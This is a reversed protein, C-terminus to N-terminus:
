NFVIKSDVHIPKRNEKCPLKHYNGYLKTLLLDYDKFSMFQNNEFTLYIYNNAIRKKFIWSNLGQPASMDIWSYDNKTHKNLNIINQLTKNLLKNRTSYPIIHITKKIIKTILNETYYTLNTRTLYILRKGNNILKRKNHINNSLKDLPFIDLWIGHHGTASIEGKILLETNNKRLKGHCTTCYKDDTCNQFYYEPIPTEKILSCFKTYEKRTMAVDIDDDWPIFGKHRVAGLLTGGYLSYKLNHKRCYKDFDKLIQLETNQLKKLTSGDM